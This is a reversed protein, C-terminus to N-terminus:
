EPKEEDMYAEIREPTVVIVAREGMAQTLIAFESLQEPKLLIM